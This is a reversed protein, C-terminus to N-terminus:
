MRAVWTTHDCDVSAALRLREVVRRVAASVASRVALSSSQVPWCLMLIETLFIANFDSFDTDAETDAKKWGSERERVGRKGRGRLERVKGGEREMERERGRGKGREKEREGGRGREMGPARVMHYISIIALRGHEAKETTLHQASIGVATHVVHLSLLWLRPPFRKSNTSECVVWLRIDWLIGAHSTWMVYAHCGCATCMSYIHQICAGEYPM